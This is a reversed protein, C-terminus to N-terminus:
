AQAAAGAAERLYRELEDIRRAFPLTDMRQVLDVEGARALAVKIQLFSQERDRRHRRKAQVAEASWGAAAKEYSHQSSELTRVLPQVVRRANAVDAAGDAGRRLEQVKAVVAAAVAPPLDAVVAVEEATARLLTDLRGLGVAYLRQVMLPELVSVQRLVSQVIIPERRDREGDLEFARPLAKIMPAYAALLPDRTQEVSTGGGGQVAKDLATAFGDIAKVLDGLEVQEAMQRLSKLAPRALDLWATVPEGWKLDIMMNRLPRVHAIALDEFTARVAAQDAATSVGHRAPAPRAPKGPQGASPFLTELTENIEAEPAGGLRSPPPTKHRAQATRRPGPVPPPAPLASPATATPAAPALSKPLPAPDNAAAMETSPRRSFPATPEAVRITSTIREPPPAGPTSEPQSPAANAAGEVPPGGVSVGDPPTDDETGDEKPFLRSFISM